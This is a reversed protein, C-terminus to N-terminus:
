APVAGDDDDEPEDMADSARRTHNPNLRYLSRLAKAQLSDDEQFAAVAESWWRKVNGVATGMQAAIEKWQDTGEGSMWVRLLAAHNATLKVTKMGQKKSRPGYPVMVVSGPVLALYEHLHKKTQKLLLYGTASRRESQLFENGEDDVVNVYVRPVHPSAKAKSAREEETLWPLKGACDEGANEDVENPQLTGEAKAEKPLRGILKRLDDIRISNLKLRVFTVLEGVSQGKFRLIGLHNPDLFHLIGASALDEADNLNFGGPKGRMVSQALQLVLPQLGLALAQFQADRPTLWADFHADDTSKPQAIAQLVLDLLLKLPDTTM